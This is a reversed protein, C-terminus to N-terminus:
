CHCWRWVFCRRTVASLRCSVSPAAPPARPSLTPVSNSSRDQPPTPVLSSQRGQSLLTVMPSLPLAHVSHLVTRLRPSAGPVIPTAARGDLSPRSPYAELLVEPEPQLQRIESIAAATDVAASAAAAVRAEAAEVAENEAHLRELEAAANGEGSAAMKALKLMAGAHGRDNQLCTVFSSVATDFEKLVLAGLGQNYSSKALATREAELKAAAQADEAAKQAAARAAKDEPSMNREKLIRSADHGTVQQHGVAFADLVLKGGVSRAGGMRNAKHVDYPTRGMKDLVVPDAGHKLLMKAIEYTAAVHLASHGQANVLSPQAGRMLLFELCEAHGNKAALHIATDGRHDAFDWSSMVMYPPWTKREGEVQQLAVLNGKAAAERVRKSAKDSVFSTIM